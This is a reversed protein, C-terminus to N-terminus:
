QIYAPNFLRLYNRGPETSATVAGNFAGDENNRNAVHGDVYAITTNGGPHEFFLSPLQSGAGRTKSISHSTPHSYKEISFAVRSPIRVDSFRYSNADYESANEGTGQLFQNGVYTARSRAMPYVLDNFRSAQEPCIWSPSAAQTVVPQAGLYPDYLFHWFSYRNKEEQEAATLPTGVPKSRLKLDLGIHDKNDAGFSYAATIHQKSQAFCKTRMATRRASALAPLLIAVLLSIISIVVLLEILTFGRGFSRVMINKRANSM